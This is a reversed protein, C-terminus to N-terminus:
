DFLRSINKLVVDFKYHRDGCEVMLTKEIFSRVMNEIEQLISDPQGEVAVKTLGPLDIM